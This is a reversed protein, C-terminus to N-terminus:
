LLFITALGLFAFFGVVDTVTTLIVGSAIAPDVGLRRVVIPIVVGALAAIALNILMAVAIVIGLSLSKHWLVTVVAVALAFVLGNMAGVALEKVLVRRANAETVIGLALARVVTTLTQTGANGGMGAVVPMMVALAVVKEITDEFLGVVSAAIIATFLNVGLWVSRRRSTRLAPAFVDEDESLGARALVTRDAEERIVDVVDDVTIRGLLRNQEDVVPATVLNYREFADAVETDPTQAPFVILDRQMVESVRRAPNSTLLRSVSLAGLLRDSRDVVFLRNTHEPLEGRQRLYRLVVELTLNERVTVTDVNMLGGATDEGYSLVADLRQRDQKDMVFLIEAIAEDSLDPILDAIEDVDLTRAAAVLERQDMERIIDERVAESVEILVEGEVKPDVQDWVARRLAPPISELLTAIDAPHLGALMVRVSDLRQEELASLLLKLNDPQKRTRSRAM